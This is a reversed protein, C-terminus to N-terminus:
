PLEKLIMLIKNIVEDYVAEDIADSGLTALIDILDKDLEHPESILLEYLRNFYKRLEESSLLGGLWMNIAYGVLCVVFLNLYFVGRTESINELVEILDALSPLPKSSRSKHM